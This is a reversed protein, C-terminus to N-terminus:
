RYEDKLDMEFIVLEFAKETAKRPLRVTTETGWLHKAEEEIQSNRM